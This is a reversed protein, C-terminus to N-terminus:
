IRMLNRLKIRRTHLLGEYDFSEIIELTKEHLFNKDEINQENEKIQLQLSILQNNKKQLETVLEVHNVM